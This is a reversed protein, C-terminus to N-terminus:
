FNRRVIGKKVQNQSNNKTENTSPDMHGRHIIKVFEDAKKVMRSHVYRRSCKIHYHLDDRFIHILDITNEMVNLATHRKELIFAVYFVNEDNILPTTINAMEAPPKGNSFIIQPSTKNVKRGEVYEQLFINGYITDEPDTFQTAIIVTVRDQRAEVYLTEDDRYHIVAQEKTVEGSQQLKFYKEFVAAFCNRKLLSANRIIDQYDDPISDLDYKLTVDYNEMPKPLLYNGYIRKLVDMAGHEKLEKFYKLHISLLILKRNGNENVLSFTVGDFDCFDHCVKKPEQGSKIDSFRQTLLEVVIRNQTEIGVM